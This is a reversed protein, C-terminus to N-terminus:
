PRLRIRGAHSITQALAGNRALAPALAGTAPATATRTLARAYVGLTATATTQWDFDRARVLGAARLRGRWAADAAVRTLQAQIQAVDDPELPGAADGITEALAGRTSSLVPCGCAM